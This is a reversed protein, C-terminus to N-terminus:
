KKKSFFAIFLCAIAYLTEFAPMGKLDGQGSGPISSVNDKGAEKEPKQEQETESQNTSDQETQSTETAPKTETVNENEVAKGTIAFFSFGPTEATFYLYKNDEKLQEVPLQSWKKDSYRNLTISAQDVNKDQLWSKEVKFCVVPNEINKETAFGANGVWLNFYKYVEGTSLNSVLTSKGKLQEAITTTKGASKKADFGVYVVCTANKTFNFMVPKGNTVRTQSIEKVQVNKAPEPSGGGGGGGGGSSHGGDDDDDYPVSNVIIQDVMTSTGNANIATLTVPYTGTATFTYVFSANTSEVTGDSGIDWNRSTASQSLDTFQVTLPANGSKVSASFGAVPYVKFEDAIIQVTKSDTGNENSVTLKVTYNGPATYTHEPNKDISDIYGDNEFDWSWSVANQSLNTFLVSLPAYGSTVSANFDAVPLISQKLGSVPALPLKDSINGSEDVYIFDTIGDGNADPTVQSFGTGDPKAWFNGGIYPGGVINRGPTKEIYWTTDRTNIDANIVNNAYNNFVLNRRCAPCEYFGSVSNFAVINESVRNDSSSDLYIGRSTDNATNGSITNYNSRSIWMGHERNNSVDNGSITSKNSSIHNIGRYNDKATNRNLTNGTSIRLYFGFNTNSNVTNGTMNNNSANELVIGHNNSNIINNLLTNRESSVLQIGSGTNSNIRNGVINNFNANSLYVGFRNDSLNNSTITCDSCRALYIGADESEIKFGSITTNRAATYFANTNARIITDDPKGSESRIVLNQKTIQISENYTGPRVIIVDGSAANNVAAQISDTSNVYFEAAAGIGSSLSFVLMAMLLIIPKKM